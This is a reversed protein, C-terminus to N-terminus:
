RMFPIDLAATALTKDHAMYGILAPTANPPIDLVTNLAHLRFQYTHRSGAPPCPGGYGISSYDTLTQIAGTPLGSQQNAPMSPLQNATPPINVVVWHWWGSGTPADPDYMTLLFSKTEAPANKWGIHPSQNEGSCDLANAIFKQSFTSGAVIDNSYLTFPQSSNNNDAASALSATLLALTFCISKLLMPKLFM